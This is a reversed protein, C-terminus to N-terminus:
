HTVGHSRLVPLKRSNPGLDNDGSRIRAGPISCHSPKTRPTTASSPTPMVASSRTSAPATKSAFGISKGQNYANVFTTFSTTGVTSTFPSTAQGTIQGLAAYIYGGEIASYSNQGNGPLSGRIWGMENM